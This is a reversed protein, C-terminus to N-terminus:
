LLAKLRKMQTGLVFDVAKPWEGMGGVIMGYVRYELKVEVGQETQNFTWIMKGNVAQDLLPGLGGSFVVKKHPEVYVVALHRVFGGKNLKECFCRHSNFDFYLNDAKGSFSHDAEWWKDVAIFQGYVEALSKSSVLQHNVIFHETSESSVKAQAISAMLALVVALM